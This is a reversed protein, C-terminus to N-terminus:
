AASNPTSRDLSSAASQAVRARSTSASAPSVSPYRAAIASQITALFCQLALRTKVDGEDGAAEGGRALAGLRQNECSVDCDVTLDNRLGARRDGGVLADRKGRRIMWVDAAPADLERAREIGEADKGAAAARQVNARRRAPEGVHQELAACARDDREVDAVPLEIPAQAGVRADEDGLAHVRAGEARVVQRVRRIQHRNVDREDRQPVDQRRKRREKGCVGIHDREHLRLELRPAVLDALVPEDGVGRHVFRDERRDRLRGRRRAELSDGHRWRDDGAGRAILFEEQM